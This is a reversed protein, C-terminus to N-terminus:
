LFIIAYIITSIFLSLTISSNINLVWFHCNLYQKLFLLAHYVWYLLSRFELFQPLLKDSIEGFDWLGFFTCNFIHNRIKIYFIFFWIRWIVLWINSSNFLIFKGILTKIDSKEPWDRFKYLYM